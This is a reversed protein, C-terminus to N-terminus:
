PIEKFVTSELRVILTHLLQNVMRESLIFMLFSRIEWTIVEIIEHFGTLQYRYKTQESGDDYDRNFSITAVRDELSVVTTAQADVDEEKDNIVIDFDSVKFFEEWYRVAKSFEYYGDITPKKKM